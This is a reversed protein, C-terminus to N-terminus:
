RPIQSQYSEDAYFEKISEVLGQNEAQTKVAVRYCSDSLGVYNDCHRILVGREELWAKLRGGSSVKEAFFVYNAAPPYTMLCDIKKMDGFLRMAELGNYRITELRYPEDKLGAVTVVQAVHNVSWPVMRIKLSERIREDSILMCGSRLGPIAYFKTFSRFVALKGCDSVKHIMSACEDAFDMFAEDYFLWIGAMECCELLAEVEERGYLVGTPNNPNCLVIGQVGKDVAESAVEVLDSKYDTEITSISFIVDTGALGFMKEYEVFTPGVVMVRELKLAVAIGHMLDIAGNGVVVHGADIGFHGAIAEVMVKCHPDPYSGIGDIAEHYAEVAMPSMGLANINASFDIIEQGRLRERAEYINGGHEYRKM